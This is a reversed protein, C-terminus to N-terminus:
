GIFYNVKLWLQSVHVHNPGLTIGTTTAPDEVYECVFAKEETKCNKHMWYGNELNMDVCNLNEANPNEGASSEEWFKSWTIESKDSNYRFEGEVNHDSIGLWIAKPDLFLFKKM